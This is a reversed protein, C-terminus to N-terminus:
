RLFPQPGKESTSVILALAAGRGTLVIVVDM